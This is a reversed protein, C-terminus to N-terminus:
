STHPPSSPRSRIQPVSLIELEDIRSLEELTTVHLRHLLETFRSIREQHLKFGYDEEIIKNLYNCRDSLLNGQKMKFDNDDIHLYYPFEETHVLWRVDHTTTSPIRFCSLFLGYFKM